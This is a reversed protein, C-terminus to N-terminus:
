FFFLFFVQDHRSRLLAITTNASQLQQQYFEAKKIYELAQNKIEANKEKELIFKQNVNEYDVKANNLQSILSSSSQQQGVTLNTIEEQLKKKEEQFEILLKSRVNQLESQMEKEKLDLRFELDSVKRELNHNENTKDRYKAELIAYREPTTHM